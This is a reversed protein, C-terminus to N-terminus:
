HPLVIHLLAFHSDIREYAFLPDGNTSGADIRWAPM